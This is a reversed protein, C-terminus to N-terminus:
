TRDSRGGAHSRAPPCRERKGSWDCEQGSPPERDARGIRAVPLRLHGLRGVDFNVTVADHDVVESVEVVEAFGIEARSPFGLSHLKRIQAGDIKEGVEPSWLKDAVGEQAEIEARLTVNTNRDLRPH